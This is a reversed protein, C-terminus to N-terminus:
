ESAYVDNAGSGTANTTYNAAVPASRLIKALVMGCVTGHAITRRPGPLGCFNPSVGGGPWIEM